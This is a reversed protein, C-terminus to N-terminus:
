LVARNTKCLQYGSDVVVSQKKKNGKTFSNIYICYFHAKKPENSMWGLGASIYETEKIEVNVVEKKMEKKIDFPEHRRVIYWCHVKGDIVKKFRSHVRKYNKYVRYFYTKGKEIKEIENLKEELTM